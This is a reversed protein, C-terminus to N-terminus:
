FRGNPLAAFLRLSNCVPERNVAKVSLQGGDLGALEAYANGAARRLRRFALAEAMFVRKAQRGQAM